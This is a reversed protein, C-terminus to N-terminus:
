VMLRGEKADFSKRGAEGMARHPKNVFPSKQTFIAIVIFFLGLFVQPLFVKEWYSFIWPSVLLFFGAFMLLVLHLQMPLSKFLGLKNDTFMAMMLLIGGMYMPILSAAGSAHAFGFMWPSAFLLASGLYDIVGFTTTSIFTKM